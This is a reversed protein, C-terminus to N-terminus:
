IVLVCLLTACRKFVTEIIKLVTFQLFLPISIFSLHVEAPFNIQFLAFLKVGITGGIVIYDLVISVLLGYYKTKLGLSKLIIVPVSIVFLIYLYFYDGYQTLNM